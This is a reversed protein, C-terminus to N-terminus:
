GSGASAVPAPNWATPGCGASEEVGTVDPSQRDKWIWLKVGHIHGLNGFSDAHHLFYFTGSLYLSLETTSELRLTLNIVKVEM